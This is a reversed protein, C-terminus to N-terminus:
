GIRRLAIRFEAFRLQLVTRMAWVGVVMNLAFALPLVCVQIVVQTQFPRWHLAAGLAGIAFGIMCGIAGGGLTGILLVRWILSWWIRLAAGWTVPLDAGLSLAGQDTPVSSM